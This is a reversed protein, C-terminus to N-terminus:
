DKLDLKFITKTSCVNNTITDYSILSLFKRNFIGFINNIDNRCRAYLSVDQNDLKQLYLIHKDLLNKGFGKNQLETKILFTNLYYDNSNCCNLLSKDEFSYINETFIYGIIKNEYYLISFIPSNDKQFFDSYIKERDIIENRPSSAFIECYYDILIEREFEEIEKQSKHIVQM